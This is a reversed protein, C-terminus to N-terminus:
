QIAIEEGALLWVQPGPARGSLTQRLIALPADLRLGSGRLVRLATPTLLARIEDGEGGLLSLMELAPRPKPRHVVPCDAALGAETRAAALADDLGGVHDILGNAKAQTGSFIRGGGIADIESVSMGRSRAALVLFRDYVDGILEDIQQKEEPRWGRNISFASASDDLTINDVGIGVRALLPGFNMKMALVGISGTITCAEAYIPEGICAIWYGGSGAVNGMTVAVPKKAGLEALASRIAESATASGGGSNIRVVVAAIMDDETLKRIAEVTPGSVMTGPQANVGDVISGELHLIALTPEKLKKERAGGMLQTMVEFFSADAAKKRKMEVWDLERGLASATGEREDGYPVLEDVLGAELAAKATFLRQGQIARVAAPSLGRGAALRSVLDDNMTKLMDLYHQRLHESIHSNVFPEVAGKFDGVRTVDARIGLLDMADRFHLSMMSLSPLDLTGFDVMLVRDCEAAIAYHVTSANELWACTKKGSEGLKRMHRTFQGLQAMNMGITPASLDLFVFDPEPDAALEDIHQCLKFFSKQPQGGGMLLALPDMELPTPNDAYVGKLEVVQIKPGGATEEQAASATALLCAAPLAWLLARAMYPKQM